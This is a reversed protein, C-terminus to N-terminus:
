RTHKNTNTNVNEKLQRKEKEAVKLDIKNVEAKSFTARKFAVDCVGEFKRPHSLFESEIAQIDKMSPNWGEYDGNMMGRFAKTMGELLIEKGTDNRRKYLPALDDSNTLKPSHQEINNFVKETSPEYSFVKSGKYHEIVPTGAKNTHEKGEKDTFTYDKEYLLPNGKEDKAIVDESYIKAQGKEDMQLVPKIKVIDEAAYIFSKYIDSVYTGDENMKHEGAKKTNAIVEPDDKQYYADDKRLNISCISLKGREPAMEPRFGKKFQIQNATVYLRNSKNNDALAQAIVVQNFGTITNHSIANTAYFPEKSPRQLISTGNKLHGIFSKVSDSVYEKEGITDKSKEM